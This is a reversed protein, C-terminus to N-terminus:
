PHLHEATGKNLRTNAALYRVADCFEPIIGHLAGTAYYALGACGGGCNERAPCSICEPINEPKRTRINAIKDPLYDINGSGANYRGFILDGLQTKGSYALDCASVFGDPTLEPMPLCSRCGYTCREDFNMTFFNGYHMGIREAYDRASLFERAFAKIDLATIGGPAMRGGNQKVSSFVPEAYVWGIGLGHFYDILEEQRALTESNITCRVGVFVGAGILRRVNAEVTGSSGRGNLAPRYRDHIESPGDLSVWTEDVNETIWEAAQASFMGNTQLEVSLSGGRIGRAYATIGAVLDMRTTPEGVAYFRIRSNNFGFLDPRRTFFDDIGAKAFRMDISQEGAANQTDNVCYTCGLNCKNTILFTIARKREHSM